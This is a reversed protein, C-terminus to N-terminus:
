NTGATAAEPGVTELLNSALRRFWEPITAPDPRGNMLAYSFLGEAVHVGLQRYAEFQEESFFQDLTSQHPFDPCITRYRRILESENGTVSLKMYLLLGMAEPRGDSAAPYYIRCLTAHAQSQTTELNPRIPDLHPEIRVGFDLQAHRVLTMLGPFTYASDAEGDVCIIFKCRRRLLEYTGMNEIHGGDSLNLWARKESMAIGTMERVLCTFGPVQPFHNHGPRRIWFGLRINLFTILAVLTPMSDLGMHSSAAAGSVAMATALDPKSANMKWEETRNYGVVPSGSWKKSFLFFDAKRDRLAYNDSSPLNVTTNVLHYPAGHKPNMESLPVSDADGDSKKIFAAALMDRYMRHPGTLNINLIFISIVAFLVLLAALLYLGDAYHLLNYSPLAANVSYEGLAIASYFLVLCIIPVVVGALMLMIKLVIRRVAPTEFVPVFRLITPAAVILAAILGAVGGKFTFLHPWWSYFWVLLWGFALIATLAMVSGLLSGGFQAVKPTQRMLAGYAILLVVTALASLALAIPWIGMDPFANGALTALVAALVILLIPASWNLLMGAITGTVMSWSQKLNIAALYKAHHRLYKIPEPDPGLPGAVDNQPSGTGLRSTLFSGTYGGGSVTSLFDVEKLLGRQALVQVVGLCFTASRIGGGSLGMGVANAGAPVGLGYLKRREAVEQSEDVNIADVIESPISLGKDIGFRVNGFLEALNEDTLAPPTMEDPQVSGYAMMQLKEAFERLRVQAIALDARFEDAGDRSNLRGDAYARDWKATVPRLDMNLLETVREAFLKCGPNRKMAERAQVFVQWLSELARAESGYQYPLPQTTIRTRLESLFEHAATANPDPLPKLDNTAM